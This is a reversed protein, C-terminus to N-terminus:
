ARKAQREDRADILAVIDEMNWLKGTVGAAMAPSVKLTKHIRAFNYFMFYLALAHCHNELKKSFANTPRTFRRMGMRMNLNQREVYSTSVHKVDPNGDVAIKKTGVCEAPSYRRESGKGEPAGFIKILQAFDAGDDGFAEQVADLYLRRLGDTTIQMRTKVRSQLDEMINRASEADRGGVAWTCILKTDADLATWTWVNGAGEPAAKAGKVNKDKSYCFSWIEDCQVRKCTLGRVYQDHYAACVQGADVLMKSVTNISVDAVRSISRMSSGECLMSLIQVRKELPLKNM